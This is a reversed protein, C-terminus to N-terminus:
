LATECAQDCDMAATEVQITSHHIGFREDVMRSVHQLFGDDAGRPVVLHATLVNETTSVAWVHLDHVESVGELSALFTSVETLDIGQPVRDMLLQFSDRFLGWTSAVIVAVIVLSLVPDLWLWGTVMMGIAAVVVGLSTVADAAMHLFAGKINLDEKHGGMFMLATATNIVVGIAAVIIVPMAEIPQPAALRGIAEWTIGGVAAFLLAASALSALITGRRYGYTHTWTPPQAALRSAAW